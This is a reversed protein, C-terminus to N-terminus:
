KKTLEKFRNLVQDFSAKKAKPRPRVSPKNKRFPSPKSPTTTPRTTPKVDPKTEVDSAVYNEFKKIHKLSM